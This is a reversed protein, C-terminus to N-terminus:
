RDSREIETVELREDLTLRLREDGATVTVSATWPEDTLVTEDFERARTRLNWYPLGTIDVDREYFFSVVAPHQIVHGFLPVRAEYKCNRCRHTTSPRGEDSGEPNECVMECACNPCIGAMALHFRNRTWKDFAEAIEGPQRGALAAPPFENWMVTDGCESCEVICYEDYRVILSGGCEPCHGDIPAAEVHPQDTLSGALVARVVERGAQTLTYGDENKSVFHERLKGLHYNFQGSDPNGVHERLETFALHDSAADWLARLIAIRTEDSLLWFAREPDAPAENPGM